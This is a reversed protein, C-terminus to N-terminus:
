FIFSNQEQQDISNFDLRIVMAEVDMTNNALIPHIRHIRHIRHIIPHLTTFLPHIIPHLVQTAVLHPNPTAKPIQALALRVQVQVPPIAKQIQSAQAPAM